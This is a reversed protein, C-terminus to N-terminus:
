KHRRNRRTHVFDGLNSNGELFGISGINAALSTHPKARLVYLGNRMDAFYILGDRVIPYSWAAVWWDDSTAATKGYVPATTDPVSMIDPVAAPVFFGAESPHTPDQLDVVRLGGGYWTTLVFRDTVTQNHMTFTGDVTQGNANKDGALGGNCQASNNEPLKYEGVQHPPTSADGLNVIRM